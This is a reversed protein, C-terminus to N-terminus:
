ELSSFFDDINAPGLIHCLVSCIVKEADGADIFHAQKTAACGGAILRQFGAKTKEYHARNLQVDIARTVTYDCDINEKAVFDKFAYVHKAEFAAVEAAADGGYDAALKAIFNYIDPKVHGGTKTLISAVVLWLSPFIVM